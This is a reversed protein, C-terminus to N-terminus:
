LKFILGQARSISLGKIDRLLPNSQVIENKERLNQIFDVCLFFYM